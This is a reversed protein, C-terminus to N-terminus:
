LCSKALWTLTCDKMNWNRGIENKLSSSISLTNLFTFIRLNKGSFSQPTRSLVNFSNEPFFCLLYAKKLV